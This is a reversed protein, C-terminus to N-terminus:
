RRPAPASGGPSRSAAVRRAPAPRYNASHKVMIQTSDYVLGSSSPAFHGALVVPVGARFLQPPTGTAVVPVTVGHSTLDFAVGGRVVHIGSPTGEIRFDRTGLESRHAVAQNVTEYYELSNAAGEYLLFGIAGLVVAGVVVLRAPLRRRRARV